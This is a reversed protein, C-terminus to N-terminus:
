KKRNIRKGVSLVSSILRQFAINFFDFFGKEKVKEALYSFSLFRMWLPYLPPFSFRIHCERCGSVIPIFKNLNLNKYEIRKHCSPCEYIVKFIDGKLPFSGTKNQSIIKPYIRYKLNYEYLIDMLEQYKGESMGTVNILPCDKTIFDIKDSIIGKEAANSYLETGPYVGVPVLFIQYEINKLWWELTENATEWTESSDGFLFNGQFGIELESTLKLAKEIQVININKKMSKLIVDSASELGYSIYSCGSDKMVELMERDVLDVRLQSLWKINYKKIRKCFEVLRDKDVAFLEDYVSLINVNYKEVLYDLEKFLDDLSRQRYKKGLPHYCFTCNYPCSRSAIVPLERPDDFMYTHFFDGPLIMEMYKDIEFGEYDPWPISDLDEIESRPPSRVVKNNSDFYVIGKINSVEIGNVVAEAIEVIVEEGEGIVGVDGDLAKLMLEPESSIIGGGLIIKIDPNVKKAIKLVVEVKSFHPSIGGTCIIDINKKKIVESLIAEEYHNLNLCEVKYGKKKLASSIYALGLPFPYYQGTNRFFKPAVILFNMM